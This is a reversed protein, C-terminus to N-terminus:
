YNVSQSDTDENDDEPDDLDEDSNVYKTCRRWDIKTYLDM